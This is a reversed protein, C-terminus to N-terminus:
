PLRKRMSMRRPVAFNSALYGFTRFFHRGEAQNGDLVRVERLSLTSEFLNPIKDRGIITSRTRSDDLCPSARYHELM